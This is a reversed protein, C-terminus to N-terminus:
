RDLSWSIILLIVKNKKSLEFGFKQHPKGEVKYKGCWNHQTTIPVVFIMIGRLDRFLSPDM